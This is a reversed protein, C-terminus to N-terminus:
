DNKGRMVEISRGSYEKRHNSAFLLAAKETPFAYSTNSYLETHWKPMFPIPGMNVFWYDSGTPLEVQKRYPEM